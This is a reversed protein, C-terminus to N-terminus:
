VAAHDGIANIGNRSPDPVRAGIYVGVPVHHQAQRALVGPTSHAQPPPVAQSAFAAETAEQLALHAPAAASSVSVSAFSSSATSTAASHLAAAVACCSSWADHAAGRVPVSQQFGNLGAPYISSHPSKLVGRRSSPRGATKKCYIDSVNVTPVTSYRVFVPQNKKNIGEAAQPALSSAQRADSAGRPREDQVSRDSPVSQGGDQRM